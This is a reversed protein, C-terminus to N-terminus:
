SIKINILGTYEVGVKKCSSSSECIIRNKLNMLIALYMRKLQRARVAIRLSTLEKTWNTLKGALKEIEHTLFLFFLIGLVIIWWPIFM